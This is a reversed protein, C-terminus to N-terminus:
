LQLPDVLFLTFSDEAGQELNQVIRLINVLMTPLLTVEDYPIVEGQLMSATGKVAIRTDARQYASRDVVSLICIELMAFPDQVIGLKLWRSRGIDSRAVVPQVILYQAQLAGISSTAILDHM